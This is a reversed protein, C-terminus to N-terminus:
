RVILAHDVRDPTGMVARLPAGKIAVRVVSGFTNTYDISNSILGAICINGLAQILEVDVGEQAFFGKKQAVFPAMLEVSRVVQCFYIKKSQAHSPAPFFLLAVFLNVLLAPRSYRKVM